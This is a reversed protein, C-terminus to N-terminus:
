RARKKRGFFMWGDIAADNALAFSNGNGRPGGSGSDDNLITGLGQGDIIEAGVAGSLNVFFTENLEKQKDGIVAVTIKKTTEGPAFTVSGTKSQYDSGATATGSATAYNVTIAQDFAASLSVTFTFLKPSKSNGETTSVDNISIVPLIDDNVITCIGQGDAIMASTVSHLYVTFTENPEPIRDGVVAVSFTASTQGAPITLSGGGNYDEMPMATGSATGYGVFVDTAAPKSLTVTFTANRTGTNGETVTVDNVSLAPPPPPPPPLVTWDGDNLLVSVNNSGSNAAAVDPRGDRNFDGVAVGSPSSGTTFSSAFHLTGDGNGLMVCVGGVDADIVIADLKGDANFDATAVAGHHGNILHHIPADFGGDGRSRLVAVSNGSVIVDANGDGTFDGTAIAGSSLPVPQGYDYQFTGNGNGLLVRGDGIVVDLKGDNNLEVAALRDNGGPDGGIQYASGGAFSGHGDGAYFQYHLGMEWHFWGVVLDLNSDNNFHGAAFHMADGSAAVVPLQFTGDGNGMLITCENLDSVVIDLKTDNNFDAAAISNPYGWGFAYEQAAGFGGAGDGLVVGVRTASFGGASALDLKGDNNFDAAVIASPTGVTAFNAAPTFSLL